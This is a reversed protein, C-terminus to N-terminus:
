AKEKYLRVSFGLSPSWGKRPKSRRSRKLCAESTTKWLWEGATTNLNTEGKVLKSFRMGNGEVVGCKEDDLDDHFM